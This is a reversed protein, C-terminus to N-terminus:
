NTTEGTGEIPKRDKQMRLVWHQPSLLCCKSSPIYYSNPITFSFRKGSDDCWKWKITGQLVNVMSGGGFSKITRNCKTPTTIFDSIDHSICAIYRNDVGIQKADTDFLVTHEKAATMQTSMAMASMIYMTKALKSSSKKTHGCHKVISRTAVSKIYNLRQKKCQQKVKFNNITNEISNCM